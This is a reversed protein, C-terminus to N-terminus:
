VFSKGWCGIEGGTLEWYIKDGEQGAPGTKGAKLMVGISIGDTETCNCCDDGTNCIGTPIFQAPTFKLNSSDPFKFDAFNRSDIDLTVTNGTKPDTDVAVVCAELGNAEPMGLIGDLIMFKGRKGVTFNHTESFTVKTQQGKEIKTIYYSRPNGNQGKYLIRAKATTGAAALKDLYDISFTTDSLTNHGVTFPIGAIQPAGTVDYFRVTSGATLGNVGSNTAVPIDATSIATVSIEPGLSNQGTNVVTFGGGELTSITVPGPSPALLEGGGEVGAKKNPSFAGGAGKTYIYGTGDAMGRFYVFHFGQGSGAAEAATGNFVDLRFFPSIGGIFHDKGDSTFCGSRKRFDVM